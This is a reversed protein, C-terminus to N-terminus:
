WHNIQKISFYILARIHKSFDERKSINAKFWYDVFDRILLDIIKHLEEDVLYVGSLSPKISLPDISKQDSKISSSDLSLESICEVLENTDKKIVGVSNKFKIKSSKLFTVIESEKSSNKTLFFAFRLDILIFFIKIFFLLKGPM